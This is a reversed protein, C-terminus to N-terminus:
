TTSPKHPQHWPLLDAAAQKVHYDACCTAPHRLAGREAAFCSSQTKRRSQRGAQTPTVAPSEQEPESPPQCDTLPERFSVSPTRPSPPAGTSWYGAGPPRRSLQGSFTAQMPVRQDPASSQADTGSRVGQLNTLSIGVEEEATM